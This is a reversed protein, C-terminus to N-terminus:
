QAALVAAKDAADMKTTTAVKKLVVTKVPSNAILIEKLESSSLKDKSNSLSSVLFGNSLPNHLLLLDKLHDGEMPPTRELVDTLDSPDLPVQDLLFGLLDLSAIDPDAIAESPNAYGSQIPGAAGSAPPTFGLIDAQQKASYSALTRALKRSYPLYQAASGGADSAIRGAIWNASAESDSIQACAEQVGSFLLLIGLFM